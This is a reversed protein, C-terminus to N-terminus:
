TPVGPHMARRVGSLDDCGQPFAGRGAAPATRTRAMGDGPGTGRM